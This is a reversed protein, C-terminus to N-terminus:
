TSAATPAIQAATASAAAQHQFHPRIAFAAACVQRGLRRAREDAAEFAREARWARFREVIAARVAATLQHVARCPSPVMM